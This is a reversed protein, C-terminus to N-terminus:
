RAVARAIEANDRALAYTKAGGRGESVVLGRKVLRQLAHARCDATVGDLEIASAPVARGDASILARLILKVTRQPDHAPVDKWGSITRLRDLADMMPKVDSLVCDRCESRDRLCRTHDAYLRKLKGLLALWLHFPLIKDLM